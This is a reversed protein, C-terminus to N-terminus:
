TMGIVNIKFFLMAVVMDDRECCDHFFLNIVGINDKECSINIEWLDLIVIITQM